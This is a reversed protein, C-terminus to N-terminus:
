LSRGPAVTAAAEQTRDLGLTALLDEHLEFWVTHYSDVMPRTVFDLEGCAVRSAAAELRRRYGSFRELAGGLADLLPVAQACLRDLEAVVAADYEPDTHDNAVLAGDVDRLQWASCADLFPQNLAVFSRYAGEVLQRAGAADVEQALLREGTRRGEATLSWGPAAGNRLVAMGGQQLGALEDDVADRDLRYRAAVGEATAVFGGLRIGHLVLPTLDSPM